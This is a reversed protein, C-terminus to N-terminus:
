HRKYSDPSSSYRDPEKQNDKDLQIRYDM